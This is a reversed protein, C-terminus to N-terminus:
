TLIVILTGTIYALIWWIYAVRSYLHLSRPVTTRADHQLRFRWILIADLVMATLSSYGLIGHLTFPSNESGIIMCTTATIDLVVGLTLFYLVRQPIMALRQETIIAISYSILALTVIGSGAVLIPKMIMIFYIVERNIFAPELSLKKNKSALLSDSHIRISTMFDTNLWIYWFGTIKTQKLIRGIDVRVSALRILHFIIM